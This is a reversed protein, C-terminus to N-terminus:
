LTCTTEHHLLFVDVDDLVDLHGLCACRIHISFVLDFWVLFSVKVGVSVDSIRSLSIIKM